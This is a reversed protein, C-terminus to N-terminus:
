AVLFFIVLALSAIVVTIKLHKLLTPYIARGTCAVVLAVSTVMGAVLLGLHGYYHVSESTDQASLFLALVAGIALIVLAYIGVARKTSTSPKIWWSEVPWAILFVGGTGIILMWRFANLDSHQIPFRFGHTQNFVYITWLVLLPIATATWGTILRIWFSPQQNTNQVDGM